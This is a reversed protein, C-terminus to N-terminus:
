IDNEEEEPDYAIEPPHDVIEAITMTPSLALFGPGDEFCAEFSRGDINVQGDRVDLATYELEKAMATAQGPDPARIYATAWVQVEIAYIKETM